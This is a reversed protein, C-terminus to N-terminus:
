LELVLIFNVESASFELSDGIKQYLEQVSSFGSVFVTPSGHALQCYFQLTTRSVPTVPVAPSKNNTTNNEPHADGNQAPLNAPKPRNKRFM